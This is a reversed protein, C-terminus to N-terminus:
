QRSRGGTAAAWAALGFFVAGEARGQLARIRPRRRLVNGIAGSGLACGVDWATGIVWFIAGLVLM